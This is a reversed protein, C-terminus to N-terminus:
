RSQLQAADDLWRQADRTLWERAIPDSRLTTDLFACSVAIIAALHRGDFAKGPANASISRNGTPTAVSEFSPGGGRSRSNGNDGRNAGANREEIEQLAEAALDRLAWPPRPPNVLDNGSLM